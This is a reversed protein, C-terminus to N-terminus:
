YSLYRLVMICIPFSLHPSTFHGAWPWEDLVHPLRSDLGPWRTRPLTGQALGWTLPRASQTLCAPGPRPCSVTQQCSGVTSLYAFCMELRRTHWSVHLSWFPSLLEPDQVQAGYVSILASAFVWCLHYWARAPSERDEGADAVVRWWWAMSFPTSLQWITAWFPPLFLFELNPYSLKAM